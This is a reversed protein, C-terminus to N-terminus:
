EATRQVHAIMENALEVLDGIVLDFSPDPTLDQIHGPGHELPRPVFATRLGVQKAARLDGQHAAVMMLHEPSLGLLHAAMKYVEPDPKYAKALEASLICDWPLGANKAMNTLLAVNGNSLTAITFHQKLRTLGPVSDPWPQLRHWTKNLEAKESEDLDSIEFETLLEELAMRHLTDLNTWPLEGHRVKNMFPGYKGRWADAFLGWDAEIGKAKGLKTCEEIISTRWDVVTGFVDFVLARVGEIM